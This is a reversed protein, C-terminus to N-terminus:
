TLTFDSPLHKFTEKAFKQESYKIDISVSFIVQGTPRAHHFISKGWRPDEEYISAPLNIKQPRPLKRGHGDVFIYDLSLSEVVVFVFQVVQRKVNSIRGAWV